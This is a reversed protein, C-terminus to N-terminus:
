TAALTPRMGALMMDVHLQWKGGGQIAAALGCMMAQVDDVTLDPRIEGAAQLRRAHRLHAGARGADHLLPHEAFAAVHAGALHQVADVRRGIGGRM